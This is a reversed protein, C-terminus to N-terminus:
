APHSDIWLATVQDMTQVHRVLWEAVDRQITVRLEAQDMGARIGAVLTELWALVRDHEQKHVEYPPFGSARMAEEERNFHERSHRLFDESAVLLGNGSTPYDELANLMTEWQRAAHAHDENMFAVALRPLELQVIQSM